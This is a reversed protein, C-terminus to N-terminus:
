GTVYKRGGAGATEQLATGQWRRVTKTLQTVTLWWLATLHDSARSSARQSTALCLYLIPADTRMCRGDPRRFAGGYGRPSGPAAADNCARAKGREIRSAARASGPCHNPHHDLFRRDRPSDGSRWSNRLGCPFLASLVCVCVRM